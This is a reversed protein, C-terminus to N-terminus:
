GGAAPRAATGSVPGDGLAGPVLVDPGVPGAGDGAGGPGGRDTGLLSGVLPVSLAIPVACLWWLAQYGNTKHFTSSLADIMVGAILTFLLGIGKTGLALGAIAGRRHAPMLKFLLGWSLTMVTGAAVAVPFIVIYYLSHWKTAFGAGTLGCAYVISAGFLVPALGFRDGLRGSIVAAVVYGAAVCALVGTAVDQSEHLGKTVYLVAFTRAAAFAGEWLMNAILFRRALHEEKLVTWSTAMYARVGAYVREQHSLEERVRVAPTGCAVTTVVAAVIFPAAHWADFLQSGAILAIGLAAGRLLHQVGQARGYVSEDLLDPYLGRYPPEYVYYAVYFVLVVIATTWLNPMLGMLALTGALGPLAILMFPRRRGLPTHFADSAPGIVLSMGLAFLGEASIIGAIVTRSSTFRELLPALYASTTTISFALGFAGFGLTWVLRNRM